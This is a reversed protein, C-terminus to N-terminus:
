ERYQRSHDHGDRWKQADSHNKMEEPLGEASLSRWGILDENAQREKQCYHDHLRNRRVHIVFSPLRQLSAVRGPLLGQVVTRLGQLNEHDTVNSFFVYPKEELNGM